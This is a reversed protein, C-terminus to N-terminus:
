AFFVCYDQSDTFSKSIEQITNSRDFFHHRKDAYKNQTAILVM